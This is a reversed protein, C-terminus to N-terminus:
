PTKKSNSRSLENFQDLIRSLAINRIPEIEDWTDDKSGKLPFIHCDSAERAFTEQSLYSHDGTLIRVPRNLKQANDMTSEIANITELLWNVSYGTQFLQNPNRSITQIFEEFRIKSHTNAEEFKPIHPPNQWPAYSFSWGFFKLFRGIFKQVLLRPNSVPCQFM